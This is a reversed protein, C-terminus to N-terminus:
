TAQAANSGAAQNHAIHFRRAWCHAATRKAYWLIDFWGLQFLREIIITFHFYPEPSYSIPLDETYLAIPFEPKINKDIFTPPFPNTNGSTLSQWIYFFHANSFGEEILTEFTTILMQLTIRTARTTCDIVLQSLPIYECLFLDLQMNQRFLM